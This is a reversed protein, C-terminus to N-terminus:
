NGAAKPSYRFSLIAESPVPQDGRMAPAFKWLRAADETARFLSHSAPGTSQVSDIKVVRGSEDIQVKVQLELESTITERIEFSLNPRSELLAHAAVFVPAPPHQPQRQATGSQQPELPPPPGLKPQVGALQQTLVSAEPRLIPTPPPDVILDGQPM